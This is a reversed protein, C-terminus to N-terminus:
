RIREFEIVPPLINRSYFRKITFSQRDASLQFDYKNYTLSSSYTNYLFIYQGEIYFTFISSHNIPFNPNLTVDTYPHSKFYFSFRNESPRSFDDSFQISDIRLTKEVWLGQLPPLPSNDKSCSVLSIAILVILILKM